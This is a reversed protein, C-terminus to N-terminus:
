RHMPNLATGSFGRFYPNESLLGLAKSRLCKFREDSLNKLFRDVQRVLAQPIRRLHMGWRVRDSLNRSANVDANLKRGCLRCEFKEQ